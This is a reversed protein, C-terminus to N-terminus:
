SGSAGGERVKSRTEMTVCPSQLLGHTMQHIVYDLDRFHVSFVQSLRHADVETQQDGHHASLALGITQLQQGVEKVESVLETCSPLCAQAAVSVMKDLSKEVKTLMEQHVVLERKARERVDTCAAGFHSLLLLSQEGWSRVMAVDCSFAEEEEGFRAQLAAKMGQRTSNYLEALDKMRSRICDGNFIPELTLLQTSLDNVSAIAPQHDELEWFAQLPCIFTDAARVSLYVMSPAHKLSHGFSMTIMIVSNHLIM